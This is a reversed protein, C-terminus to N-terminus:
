QTLGRKSIVGQLVGLSGWSHTPSHTPTPLSGYYRYIGLVAWKPFTLERGCVCRWDAQPHVGATLAPAGQSHVVSLGLGWAQLPIAKGASERNLTVYQLIPFAGRGEGWQYRFINLSSFINMTQHVIRAYLHNVSEERNLIGRLSRRISNVDYQGDTKGNKGM